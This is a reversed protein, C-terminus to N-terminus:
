TVDKIRSAHGFGLTCYPRIEDHVLEGIKGVLDISDGLEGRTVVPDTGLAGAVQQGSRPLRPRRSEERLANRPRRGGATLRYGLVLTHDKLRAAHHNPVAGEVPGARVRAQM